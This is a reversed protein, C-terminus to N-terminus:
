VLIDDITWSPTEPRLTLDWARVVGDITRVVKGHRDVELGPREDLIFGIRREPPSRGVTELPGLHEIRVTGGLVRHGRAKLKLVGSVLRRCAQCRGPTALRRLPLVGTTAFSYRYVAVFHRAFAEAGAEDHANAAIPRAPLSPVPRNTQVTPPTTRILNDDPAHHGGSFACGATLLSLVVTASAIRPQHEPM